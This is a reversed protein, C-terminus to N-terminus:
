SWPRPPWPARCSGACPRSRWSCPTLLGALVVLSLFPAMLAGGLLLDGAAHAQADGVQFGVLLLILILGEVTIAVVDLRSLLHHEEESVPLLLTFALGTSLGSCLFLVGLLPSNWAGRAGFASLLIGTYIGLGVGLILNTKAIPAM